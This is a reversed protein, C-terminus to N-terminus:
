EFILFGFREPVHFQPNKTLTSSWCAYTSTQSDNEWDKETHDVQSIIRYINLRYIVAAAPMPRGLLKLPIKIYGKWSNTTINKEVTHVLGEKDPDLMAINFTKDSKYATNIRALFLANNPNIEIEFYGEQVEKGKSIFVEFVEQKYLATNNKDYHNQNVRPNNRCEFQIELFLRDYKLKVVTEEKIPTGGVSQKFHVNDIATFAKTNIRLIPLDNMPKNSYLDTAPILSKKEKCSMALLILLLVIAKEM